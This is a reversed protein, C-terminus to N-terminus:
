YKPKTVIRNLEDHMRDLLFRMFEQADEEEDGEFMAVSKSFKDKLDHASCTIGKRVKTLLDNYANCIPTHRPHKETLFQDLM